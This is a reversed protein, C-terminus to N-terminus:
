EVAQACHRNSDDVFASWAVAVNADLAILEPAIM